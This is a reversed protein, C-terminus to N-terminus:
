AGIGTISNEGALAFTAIVSIGCIVYIRETVSIGLYYYRWGAIGGTICSICTMASIRIVAGEYVRRPMAIILRDNWWGAGGVTIGMIPAFGTSILIRAVKCANKRM